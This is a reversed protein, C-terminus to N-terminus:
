ATFGWITVNSQTNGTGFAGLTAVINTNVASSPIPRVFNFTVPTLGVTAGAPVSVPIVISGGATGSITCSAGGAATAGLGGIIIGALYTFKAAAGTLTAVASSNSGTASASIDSSSWVGPNPNLTGDPNQGSMDMAMLTLMREEISEAQMGTAGPVLLNRLQAFTPM